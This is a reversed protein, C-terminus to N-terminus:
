TPRQDMRGGRRWALFAAVVAILTLVQRETAPNFPDTAVKLELRKRTWGGKAYLADYVQLQLAHEAVTDPDDGMEMSLPRPRTPLAGRPDVGWNVVKVALSRDGSPPWVFVVLLAVTILGWWQANAPQWM